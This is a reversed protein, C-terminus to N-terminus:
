MILATIKDDAQLEALEKMYAEELDIKASAFCPSAGFTNVRILLNPTGYLATARDVATEHKVYKFAEEEEAWTKVQNDFIQVMEPKMPQASM